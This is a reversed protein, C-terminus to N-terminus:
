AGNAIAMIANIYDHSHNISFDGHNKDKPIEIEIEQGLADNASLSKIAEITSDSIQEKIHHIIDNM